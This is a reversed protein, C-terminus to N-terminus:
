KLLDSVNVEQDNFSFRVTITVGSENMEKLMKKEEANIRVTKGLVTTEGANQTVDGLNLTPIEVGAKWVKYATDISRFVCFVKQSAYKQNSINTVAKDIDIVSLAVGAPCAMKMSQRMIENVSAANDIVMARSAKLQPVWQTAVVGHIMRDDVRFGIFGDAKM